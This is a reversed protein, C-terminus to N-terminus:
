GSVLRERGSTLVSIEEYGTSSKEDSEEDSMRDAVWGYRSRSKGEWCREEGEGAGGSGSLSERNRM